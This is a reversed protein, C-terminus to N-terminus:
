IRVAMVVGHFGGNEAEFFLHQGNEEPFRVRASKIGVRKLLQLYDVNFAAPGYETEFVGVQIKATSQVLKADALDLLPTQKSASNFLRSFDPYKGIEPLILNGFVDYYGPDVRHAVRILVRGNSAILYQGDSYISNLFERVDRKALFLSALKFPGDTKLRAAEKKQTQKLLWGVAYVLETETPSLSSDSFELQNLNYILESSNKYKGIVPLDLFNFNM